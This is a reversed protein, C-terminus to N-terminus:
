AFALQSSSRKMLAVGGQAKHDFDISDPSVGDAGFSLVCSGVGFVLHLRLYKGENQLVNIGKLLPTGTLRSFQAKLDQVGVESPLTLRLTNGSTLSLFVSKGESSIRPVLSGGQPIVLLKKMTAM